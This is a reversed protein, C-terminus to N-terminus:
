MDIRFNFWIELVLILLTAFFYMQHQPRTWHHMIAGWQARLHPFITCHPMFAHDLYGGRRTRGIGNRYITLSCARWIMHTYNQQAKTQKQLNLDYILEYEELNTGSCGFTRNVKYWTYPAGINSLENAGPFDSHFKVHTIKMSKLSQHNPCRKHFQVLTFTVPSWQNDTLLPEHLPKTGDPMLSNGSDIKVWIETVM